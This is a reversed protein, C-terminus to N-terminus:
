RPPPSTAIELAGTGIRLQGTGRRREVLLPAEPFGARALETRARHIEVNLRTTDTYGLENCLLDAHVWGQESEDLCRQDRDELRARALAVLSYVYTRDSRWLERGDRVVSVVSYDGDLSTFFRLISGQLPPRVSGLEALSPNTSTAAATMPLYVVWADDGLVIRERSSVQRCEGGNELVWEGKADQYVFAQSGSSGLVLIQDEAWRLTLSRLNRACADPTGDDEVVWTEEQTGFGLRMGRRVRRREGEALRVGDVYSGNTSGLDRFEWAADGGWVLSAHFSSVWKGTLALENEPDRGIRTFATLRAVQSSDASALSATM